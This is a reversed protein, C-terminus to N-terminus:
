FINVLFFIMIAYLSNKISLGDVIRYVEGGGM